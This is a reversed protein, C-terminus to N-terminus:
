DPGSTGDNVNATHDCSAEGFSDLRCKACNEHDWHLYDSVILGAQMVEQSMQVYHELPWQRHTVDKVSIEPLHLGNRLVKITLAIDFGWGGPLHQQIVFDRNVVVLGGLPESICSESFGLVSLLPRAVLTTVPSSIPSRGISLRVVPATCPDYAEFLHRLMPETIGRVDADCIFVPGPDAACLGRYVAFGKGVKEEHVIASAGNRKAELKTEDFSNNDVVIVSYFMDLKNSFLDVIDGIYNEENRAPIIVQYKM